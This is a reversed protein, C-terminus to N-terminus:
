DMRNNKLSKVMMEAHKEHGGFIVAAKKFFVKVEANDINPIFSGNVLGNVAQHYGLENEAYALDFEYGRLKSLRAIIGESQGLLQQSLFNDQPDVNLKKLLALAQENAAEHDRIMTAAFEQIAPNESIALALHAYRIDINDATYAVHAIELDNLDAPDQAQAASAFLAIAAVSTILTKTIM